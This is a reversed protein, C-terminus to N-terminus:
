KVSFSHGESCSTDKMTESLICMMTISNVFELIDISAEEARADLAKDAGFVKVMELLDVESKDVLESYYEDMFRAAVRWELPSM